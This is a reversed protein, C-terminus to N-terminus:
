RLLVVSPVAAFSASLRTVVQMECLADDREVLPVIEGPFEFLGVEVVVPLDTLPSLETPDTGNGRNPLTVNCSGEVAVTASVFLM